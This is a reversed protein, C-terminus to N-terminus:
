DQDQLQQALEGLREITKQQLEILKAQERIYAQLLELKDQNILVQM